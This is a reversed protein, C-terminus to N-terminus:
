GGVYDGSPLPFGHADFVRGQDDRFLLLIHGTTTPLGSPPRHHPFPLIFSAEPGDTTQVTERDGYGVEIDVSSAGQLDFALDVSGDIVNVTPAALDGRIGQVAWYMGELSREARVIVDGGGDGRTVRVDVLGDRIEEPATATADPWGLVESAFGMALSQPDSRLEFTGPPAEGEILAGSVEAAEESTDEPWVSNPPAQELLTETSPILPPLGPGTLSLAIKLIEGLGPYPLTVSLATEACDDPHAEPSQDPWVILWQEDSTVAQYLVGRTGDPLPPAPILSPNGHPVTAQLSRWLTVHSRDSASDNSEWRLVADADETGEMPPPVAEGAAAVWPIYLPRVDPYDCSVFGPGTESPPLASEIPPQLLGSLPVSTLTGRTGIWLRDQTGVMATPESIGISGVAATGAAPDIAAMTGDLGLGIVLGGVSEVFGGPTAGIRFTLSLEGTTPDVVSVASGPEEAPCPPGPDTQECSLGSEHAVWVEGDVVALDGVPFPLEVDTTLQGALDVELLTAPTHDVVWLGDAGVELNGLVSGPRALTITSEESEPDIMAIAGRATLVWARGESVAVESPIFLRDGQAVEFPLEPLRIIGAIRNTEPDIRTLTGARLNTVWVSGEGAAIDGVEGLPIRAVVELTAPDVRVVEGRLDNPDRGLWTAVWVADEGVAIAQPLGGVVVSGRTAPGPPPPPDESLGFLSWLGAGAAVFVATAVAGATIRRTRRRRGARGVVRDLADPTPKFREARRDLLDKLDDM